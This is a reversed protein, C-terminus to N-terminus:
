ERQTNKKREEMAQNLLSSGLQLLEDKDEGQMDLLGSELANKLVSKPDELSQINLRRADREEEIMPAPLPEVFFADFERYLRKKAEIVHAPNVRKNEPELLIINGAADDYTIETKDQNPGIKGNSYLTAKKFVPIDDFVKSELSKTDTDYIWIGRNQVCEHPHQQWPMGPILINKKKGLIQSHHIHGVISLDFDDLWSQMIVDKTPIGEHDIVDSSGPNLPPSSPMYCAGEVLGHAICIHIGDRDNREFWSREIRERYPVACLNLGEWEDTCPNEIVTFGKLDKLYNLGHESGNRIAFDHNGPIMFVNLGLDEWSKFERYVENFVIMPVKNKAEFLDGAFIVSDIGRQSCEQRINRLIKMIMELRSNKGDPSKRSFRDYSHVHIDSFILIKM